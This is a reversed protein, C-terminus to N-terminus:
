LQVRLLEVRTSVALLVSLYCTIVLLFRSPPLSILAHARPFGSRRGLPSCAPRARCDIDSRAAACARRRAPGRLPTTPPQHLSVMSGSRSLLLGFSAIHLVSALESHHPQDATYFFAPTANLLFSAPAAGLLFSAPAACHLFSAPAARRHPHSPPESAGVRLLDEASPLEGSETV